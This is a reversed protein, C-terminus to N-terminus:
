LGLERRVQELPVAQTRGEAKAKLYRRASRADARDELWEEVLAKASRGSSKAEREIATILEPTLADQGGAAAPNHHTSRTGSM